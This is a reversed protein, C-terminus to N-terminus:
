WSGSSSKWFEVKTNRFVSVGFPTKFCWITNQFVLHMSVGITFTASTGGLLGVSKYFVNGIFVVGLVSKCM